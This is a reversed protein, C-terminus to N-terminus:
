RESSTLWGPHSPAPPWRRRRSRPDSNFALLCRPTTRVSRGLRWLRSRGLPALAAPAAGEPNDRGVLGSLSYRMPSQDQALSAASIGPSALLDTSTHAAVSPKGVVSPAPLADPASAPILLSPLVASSTTAAAQGIGSNLLLEWDVLVPNDGRATATVDAPGAELDLKVTQFQGAPGPDIPSTGAPTKAVLSLADGSHRVLLTYHGAAEVEFRFTVSNHSDIPAIVEVGAVAAARSVPGLDRLVNAFGALGASLLGRSELHESFWPGRLRGRGPRNEM